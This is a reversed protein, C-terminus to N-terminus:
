ELMPVLFSSNCRCPGGHLLVRLLAETVAGLLAASIGAAVCLLM